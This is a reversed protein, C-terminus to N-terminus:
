ENLVIRLLTQESDIIGALSKASSLQERRQQLLLEVVDGLRQWIRQPIIGCFSCIEEPTSISTDLKVVESRQEERYDRGPSRAQTFYKQTCEAKLWENNRTLGWFRTVMGTAPSSESERIHEWPQGHYFHGHYFVDDDPFIGRTELPFFGTTIKLESAARNTSFSGAVRTMAGLKLPRESSHGSQYDRVIKLDGLSKLTMERLHPKILARRTELLDFWDKNTLANRRALIRLGETQPHLM